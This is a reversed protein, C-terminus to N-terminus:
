ASHKCAETLYRGIEMPTIGTICEPEKRTCHWNCNFCDLHHTLWFQSPISAWPGFSGYHGGGLLFVGPKSMSCAIHAAASDMSFIAGASAILRCFELTDTPTLVDISSSATSLAQALRLGDSRRSPEVCVGYRWGVPLTCEKLACVLKDLPYCRIAASAHPCILLTQGKKVSFSALRPLYTIDKVGVLDLLRRNAEIERPVGRCDSQSPYGDSVKYKFKRLQNPWINADLESGVLGYSMTASLSDFLIDELLTPHHRFSIFKRWQGHLDRSVAAARVQLMALPFVSSLRPMEIVKATPLEARAIPAVNRRVLIAREFHPYEAEVKAFALRIAESAIVFDGIHDTKAVLVGRGKGGFRMARSRLLNAYFTYFAKQYISTM